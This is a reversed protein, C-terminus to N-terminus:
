RREGASSGGSRPAGEGSDIEGERALVLAAASCAPNLSFVLDGNDGDCATVTM